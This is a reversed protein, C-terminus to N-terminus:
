FVSDPHGATTPALPSLQLFHSVRLTWAHLLGPPSAPPKLCDHGVVVPDHGDWYAARAPLCAVLQDPGCRVTVHVPCPTRRSLPSACYRPLYCKCPELIQIPLPITVVRRHHIFASVSSAYHGVSTPLQLLSAPPLSAHPCGLTPGVLPSSRADELPTHGQVVWGWHRNASACSQSGGVEVPSIPPLVWGGM